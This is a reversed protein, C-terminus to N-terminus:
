HIYSPIFISCYIMTHYSLCPLCIYLEAHSILDDGSLYILLTVSRLKQTSALGFILNIIYFLPLPFIKFLQKRSIDPFNVVGIFKAFQAILIIAVIQGIGLTQFSPFNYSTLVTKNVMVILISTIGFFLSAGIQKMMLSDRHADPIAEKHSAM